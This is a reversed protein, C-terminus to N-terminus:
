LSEQFENSQEAIKKRNLEEEYKKLRENWMEKYKLEALHMVYFGFIGGIITGTIIRFYGWRASRM